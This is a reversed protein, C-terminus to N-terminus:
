AYIYWDNLALGGAPVAPLHTASLPLKFTLSNMADATKTAVQTTTDTSNIIVNVSTKPLAPDTGVGDVTYWTYYDTTPSSPEFYESAAPVSNFTVEWEFPINIAKVLADMNQDISLSSVLNFTLVWSGAAAPIWSPAAKGDLQFGINGGSPTYTGTNGVWDGRTNKSSTGWEFINYPGNNTDTTAASNTVYNALNSSTYTINASTSSTQSVTLPQPLPPNPTGSGAYYGSANFWDGLAGTAITVGHANAPTPNPTYSFGSFDMTIVNSARTAKVDGPLGVRSNVITIKTGLTGSTYTSNERAGDVSDFKVVNAISTVMMDGAGGYTNGIVNYLRRNPINPITFESVKLTAGDCRHQDTNQKDIKNILMGGTKEYSIITGSFYSYSNYNSNIGSNNLVFNNGVIDGKDQGIPISPYVPSSISGVLSLMNTFSVTTIQGVGCRFIIENFNSDGITKGAITPFEYSFVYKTRTTTVQITTIPIEEASSGSAGYNRYLIIEVPVTGSLKNQAQFSFTLTQGEYSNVYGIETSLDKKSEGTMISSSSIQIEQVPQGEITELELSNFTITNKTTTAADQTFIWSWAVPTIPDEILGPEKTNKSFDLSYTFQGNSFINNDSKTVDGGGGQGGNPQYGDLTEIVNGNKDKIEIYYKKDQMYIPPWSGVGTLVIPNNNPTTGEADAYTDLQVSHDSDDFFELTGADALEGVLDGTSYHFYNILPSNLLYTTTM